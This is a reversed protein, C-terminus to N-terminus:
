EYLDCFLIIVLSLLCQRPESKFVQFSGVAYKKELM